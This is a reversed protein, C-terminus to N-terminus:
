PSALAARAAARELLALEHELLKARDENAVSILDLLVARARRIVQVSGAGYLRIEEFSLQVYDAFDPRPLFLRPRGGDDMRVPSPIARQVLLRLLDHLRDIVEAATTPDNVGPSLARVAIDVLQRFGFAADKQPTREQALVLWQQAQLDSVDSAGWLQVVCAGRPVFDGVKPLVAIQLDRELAVRM